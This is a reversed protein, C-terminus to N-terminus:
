RVIIEGPCVRPFVDHQKGFLFCETNRGLKWWDREHVISYMMNRRNEVLGKNKKWEKEKNM